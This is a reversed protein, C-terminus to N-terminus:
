AAIRDGALRSRNSEEQGELPIGDYNGEDKSLLKHWFGIQQLAREVQQNELNQCEPRVM